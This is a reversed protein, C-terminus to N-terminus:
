CSIPKHKLVSHICRVEHWECLLTQTSAKGFTGAPLMRGPTPLGLQRCAVTAVLNATTPQNSAM